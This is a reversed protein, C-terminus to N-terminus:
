TFHQWHNDWNMGSGQIHLGGGVAFTKVPEQSEVDEFYGSPCSTFWMAPQESYFEDFRHHLAHKLSRVSGDSHLNEWPHTCVRGVCTKLVM